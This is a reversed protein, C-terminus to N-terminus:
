VRESPAGLAHMDALFSATFADLRRRHRWREVTLTDDLDDPDAYQGEALRLGAVGADSVDDDCMSLLIIWDQADFSRVDVNPEFQLIRTGVQASKIKEGHTELEAPTNWHGRYPFTFRISLHVSRADLHMRKFKLIERTCSRRPNDSSHHCPQYTLWIILEYKGPANELADIARRLETDRIMFEEAHDNVVPSGRFCNSYRAQYVITNAAHDVLRAIAVVTKGRCADGHRLCVPELAWEGAEPCEKCHFFSECFQEANGLLSSGLPQAGAVNCPPCADEHTPIDRWAHAREGMRPYVSHRTSCQCPPRYDLFAGGGGGGRTAAATAGLFTAAGHKNNRSKNNNNHYGGSTEGVLNNNNNNYYQKERAHAHRRRSSDLSGHDRSGLSPERSPDRSIDDSTMMMHESYLQESQKQSAEMSKNRMWPPVYKKTNSSTSKSSTSGSETANNNGGVLDDDAM